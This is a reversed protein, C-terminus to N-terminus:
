NPLFFAVVTGPEAQFNRPTDDIGQEDIWADGILPPAAEGALSDNMVGTWGARVAACSSLSALFALFTLRALIRM